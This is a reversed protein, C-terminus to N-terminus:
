LHYFNIANTSLVKEQDSMSLLNALLGQYTQWIETYSGSLLCVPWDGGCLCRDTGFEELAFAIYPKLDEQTWGGSNGSATGLGSIKAFFNPHNAAQKMLDGWLGFQKTAIPPQGLHDFVMQLSPIKEAVKLATEIHFPNICSLDFPIKYAALYNLSEIVTDQLLWTHDSENHILHRVGKLYPDTSYKEALLAASEDPNTLPLWGVVGKIWESKKAVDLMLNTDDMNNAAQVLIGTSVNAQKIQPTLEELYYSRNLISIDGNLWEYDARKLDWIHVHTDIINKLM